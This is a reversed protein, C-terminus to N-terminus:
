GFLDFPIFITPEKSGFIANLEDLNSTNNQHATNEEVESNEDEEEEDEVEEEDYDEEDKQDNVKKCDYVEVSPKQIDCQRANLVIERGESLNKIELQSNIKKDVEAQKILQEASPEKEELQNNSVDLLVIYGPAGIM